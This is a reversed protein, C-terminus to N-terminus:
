GGFSISALAVQNGGRRVAEALAKDAARVLVDQQEATHPYSAVGMSVTFPIEQGEHVVLQAACQRRLGEMRAHATALGVGSFLVAFHDGELRCAADMARTNGRLLNGLAELVRATACESRGEVPDLVMLVLAFERHERSSLDIERRLFDVFHANSYLGTAGDRLSQDQTDRRLQENLRQQEELQRLAHQLQQERQRAESLDSWIALVHTPAGFPLGFRQVAYDRRGASGEYRHESGAGEPQQSASLEASRLPTWQSSSMLDGDVHGVVEDVDRGLLQAMPANIWEYRGSDIHKLSMPLKLRQGYGVLAQGLGDFAAGLLRRLADSDSSRPPPVATPSDIM